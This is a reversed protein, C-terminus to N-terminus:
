STSGTCITDANTDVTHSLDSIDSETIPDATIVQDLLSLYTGAGTLTVEDQHADVDAAHTAILSGIETSADTCGEAAGSGDVGLPYEGASCNAGNGHGEVLSEVQDYIADKTPAENSGDWAVGYAEAPVTIDVNCQLSTSTGTLIEVGGATVRYTDEDASAETTVKTDNDRDRILSDASASGIVTLVM